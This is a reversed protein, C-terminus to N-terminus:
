LIRKGMASLALEAALEATQNATDLIPNVEVIDMSVMGASDAIMEMALHAERYTAGGRVPTGVGPAERPDVFDLDLSVHFGATGVRAIALAEEVAARIGREDIQRMTIARLGAREILAREGPDLDRVGVLVSSRVEVFPEQEVLSTLVGQGLGLSYALPMGHVNGSPSTEPTNMDAHADFWILGLREGRERMARAAGALTGMALSHDGGLTLPTWGAAMRSHILRAAERCTGAIASAYRAREDEVGRTEPLEVDVDGDDEVEVGLRRLRAGLGAARIASPGMDVGRRRQGLDLPVGLISIKKGNMFSVGARGHTM